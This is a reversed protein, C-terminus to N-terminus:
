RGGATAAASSPPAADPADYDDANAIWGKARSRPRDDDEDPEIARRATM